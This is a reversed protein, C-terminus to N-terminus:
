KIGEKKEIAEIIKQREAESYKGQWDAAMLDEDLFIVKKEGPKLKDLGYRKLMQKGLEELSTKLNDLWAQILENSYGSAHLGQVTRILDHNNPDISFQTIDVPMSQDTYSDNFFNGLPVGLANLIRELTEVTPNNTGSEIYSLSAASIKAKEAVDKAKMNKSERLQRIKEGLGPM